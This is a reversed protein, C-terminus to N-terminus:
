FLTYILPALATGSMVLLASAALLSLIIPVMWWKRTRNLFYWFEGLPGPSANAARQAQQEFEAAQNGGSPDTKDPM